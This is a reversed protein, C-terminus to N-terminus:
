PITHIYRHKNTEKNIQRIIQGKSSYITYAIGIMDRVLVM